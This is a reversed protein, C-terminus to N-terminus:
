WKCICGCVSNLVVFYYKVVCLMELCVERVCYKELVFLRVVKLKFIM